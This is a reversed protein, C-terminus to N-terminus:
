SARHPGKPSLWRLLREDSNRGWLNLRPLSCLLERRTLVPIYSFLGKFWRSVSPRFKKRSPHRLQELSQSISIGMGRAPSAAM